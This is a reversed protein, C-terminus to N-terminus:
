PSTKRKRNRCRHKSVGTCEAPATYRVGAGAIAQSMGRYAGTARRLGPM